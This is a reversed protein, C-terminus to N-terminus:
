QRVHCRARHAHSGNRGGIQMLRPREAHCIEEAFRCRPRFSCLDSGSHSATSQREERTEAGHPEPLRQASPVSELLLRTYPHSPSALVAEAPGEEVVEGAYLVVIRDALYRASALDHTVFLYSINRSQRLDDLLNLIGIRLSVDLMSVPEDALILSPRAALARAIAVRQRQGGSLQSPNKPLFERGPRLGVDELLVEALADADAGRDAIRHRLLPRRLTYGVTHFPNLSAFPDQFIMQVEGRFSLSAKRPELELLDQGRWFIKGSTPPLLRAILKLITSKGSGSEGVLAVTEGQFLQLDVDRLIRTAGKVLLGRKPYSKGLARLELLPLQTKKESGNPM